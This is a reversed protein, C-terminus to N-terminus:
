TSAEFPITRHMNLRGVVTEIEHNPRDCRCKAPSENIKNQEGLRATLMTGFTRKATM